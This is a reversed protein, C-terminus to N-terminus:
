EHWAGLKRLATALDERLAAFNRTVTAPRAILVYDRGPQAHPLLEAALARLRRRARNRIVASGIKGSATLGFRVGQPREGPTAHMQLILGPAVWKRGKQAAALFDARHRLVALPTPPNPSV